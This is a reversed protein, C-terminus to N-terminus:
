RDISTEDFIGKSTDLFIDYLRMLNKINEPIAPLVTENIQRIPIIKTSTSTIFTGDYHSIEDLKIDNETITFGNNKAVHMVTMRTVGELVKETPPTFLVNDKVAFFNTRTGELIHNHEDILLADYCGQEQAKKYALYSGLMNLTKANPFIRQYNVTITKAGQSYLKRDPFLPASLFIYLTADERKGAGILLLKINCAEINGHRKILDYIYTKITDKTYPHDLTIARASHELRELHQDIFYVIENRVKLTEYVGFGYSYEINFLSVTAQEVPLVQGNKSFYQFKM